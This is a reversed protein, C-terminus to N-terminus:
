DSLRTWSKSVGHVTARWAGRNTPNELCSYQLPNGAREGSSRGSGLISGLDGANCAFEKGDSSCHLDRGPHFHFHLREAMDLEKHGWPSYGVLRRWGHSKWLLLLSSLFKLFVFIIITFIYRPIFDIFLLHQLPHPSFPFRKCQQYSHLSTCGSHLATHFNRLFSSILVAMRGLLGVAPCVRQPFWFQFLCM